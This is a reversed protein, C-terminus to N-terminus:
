DKSVLTSSAEEMSLPEVRITRENRYTVLGPHNGKVKRVDKRLCIDVEVQGNDKASSYNAALAAAIELTTSLIPESDDVVKVLVHSGPVGRAHLWTDERAGIEFTIVENQIASRGIYIRNGNSDVISKVSAKPSKAPKKSNAEGQPETLWVWEKRVNELEAFTETGQILAVIQDLMKLETRTEAVIEELSSEGRQDRRYRAFYEQAVDVARSNPDLPIREGDYELEAQRPQIEYLSALIADGWRRYQDRDATREAEQLLNHLRSETRARRVAVSALM